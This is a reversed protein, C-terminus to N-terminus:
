VAHYLSTAPPHLAFWGCSVTVKEKLFLENEVGVSTFELAM